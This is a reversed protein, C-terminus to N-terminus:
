GMVVVRYVDSVTPPTNFHYRISNSNVIQPLISIILGTSVIWTQVILAVTDLNHELLFDTETGDGTIEAVRKRLVAEFPIQVFILETTDLIITGGTTLQWKTGGYYRGESVVFTVRPEILASDNFDSTRELIAQTASSGAYVVRYIGNQRGDIQNQLFVRDDINLSVFDIELEGMALLTLTMDTNNYTGAIDNTAAVRVNEKSAGSIRDEVWQVNVADNPTAISGYLKVTETFDWSNAM